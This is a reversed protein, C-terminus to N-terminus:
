VAMMKALVDLVRSRGAAPSTGAASGSPSPRPRCIRPGLPQPCPARASLKTHPLVLHPSSHAQIFGVPMKEDQALSPPAGELM